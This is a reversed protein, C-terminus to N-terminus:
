RSGGLKDELASRLKSRARHLLVRQNVESLELLECVEESTWGEVDRLAVVRRQNEPLTNMTEAIAEFTAGALVREEPIDSWRAPPQAWAGRGAPGTFREIPVSPQEAEHLEDTLSSVPVTRREREGRTRAQNGLIRFIWTRLTSRGEFGDLGKLVAIWTDQVVEEAVAASPVYGRAFRVMAAQNRGVLDRFAAQDGARLRAVLDVDTRPAAVM